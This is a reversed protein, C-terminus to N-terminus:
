EGLTEMPAQNDQFQFPYSLVIERILTEARNEEARLKEMIQIVAYEDYPQLQRGLAFSLMREVVNTLFEEQRERVLYEKLESAGQFTIGGPLTGTNDIPKGAQKTRFRGIADFNELGFGIPDIKDHCTACSPNRRHLLLEERLTLKKKGADGSLEGADAPPEPLERGLMTELVWKGRLVPSTRTPSSTMTLVSAMGLLGGRQPDNLAVRQYLSHNETEQREQRFQEMGYEELGYHAALRANVFTERNDILDLLSRNEQLLAEFCLTTEAKMDEALEPSFEPFVGGDPFVSEGLPSTGLWQGTFTETMARVKPDHLMRHVQATLVEPNQLTGSDALEFLEEDPMSMWLFYSLRSALQYPDLQYEEQRPGLEVRYLFNPSVLIGLTALKMSEEFTDGRQQGREFLLLYPAVEAETVPRRFARKAFETLGAKAAERPNRGEPRYCEWPVKLEQIDRPHLPGEIQIWDIAVEGPTVLRSSESAAEARNLLHDRDRVWEANVKNFRREVEAVSIGQVKALEAHLEKLDSTRDYYYGLFRRMESKDGNDELLRLWELPRQASGHSSNIRRILQLARQDTGKPAPYRPINKGSMQGVITNANPPLKKVDRNDRKSQRLNPPIFPKHINFTVQQSGQPVLCILEYSRSYRYPVEIDGKIQNAVRMRTGTLGATSRARVTFRYYGDAPFNVSEYLTMQGRNLVYGVFGDGFDRTRSKTETMFMKESELKVKMPPRRLALIAELTQDAADLYKEMLAPTLFLADRDTNFGSKGEGDPSFLDGPRLDIGLLDRMTNNYEEQTFRPLTVRGPNKMRSWDVKIAEEVWEIADAREHPDPLPEDPPMEQDRLVRLVKKWTERDNRIATLDAYGELNIESEAYDASHCAVCYKTLFPRIEALDNAKALPSMGCAFALAVALFTPFFCSPSIRIM